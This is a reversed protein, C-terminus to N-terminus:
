SGSLGAELVAADIEEASFGLQDLDHRILAVEDVAISHVYECESDSEVGWVGPSSLLLMSGGDLSIEAQLRVGILWWEDRNYADLRRRNAVAAALSGLQAPTQELWSVDPTEDYPTDIFIRLSKM